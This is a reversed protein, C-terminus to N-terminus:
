PWDIVSAHMDQSVVTRVSSLSAAATLSRRPAPQSEGDETDPQDAARDAQRRALVDLVDLDDTEAAATLPEVVGALAARDVDGRPGQLLCELAGLRAEAAGRHPRQGVLHARGQCGRAGVAQDGVDARGLAPQDLREVVLPEHATVRDCARLRAADLVGAGVQELARDPVQRRM